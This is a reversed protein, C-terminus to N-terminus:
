HNKYEQWREEGLDKNDKTDNKPFLSVFFKNLQTRTQHSANAWPQPLFLDGVAIFIVTLIVALILTPSRM